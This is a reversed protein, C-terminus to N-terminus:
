KSRFTYRWAIDGILTHRHDEIGVKWGMDEYDEVIEKALDLDIHNPVKVSRLGKKLERNLRSTVLKKLHERKDPSQAASRAQHPSIPKPM